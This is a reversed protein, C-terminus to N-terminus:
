PKRAPTPSPENPFVTFSEEMLMYNQHLKALIEPPVPPARLQDIAARAVLEGMRGGTNSTVRLNRVRGGCAPIEFTTKITGLQLSDEHVEVLRYWIPGLQDEVLKEYREQAPFVKEPRNSAKATSPATQCSSFCVGLLIILM